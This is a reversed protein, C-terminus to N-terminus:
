ALQLEYKSNQRLYPSEEFVGGIRNLWWEMCSCVILTALCVNKKIKKIECGFGIVENYISVLWWASIPDADFSYAETLSSFLM